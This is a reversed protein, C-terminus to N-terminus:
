KKSIKILEINYKSLNHLYKENFRRELDSIRPLIITIYHRDFETNEKFINYGTIKLDDIFINVDSELGKLVIDFFVYERDNYSKSKYNKVEEIVEDKVKSDLYKNSFELFQFPKYFHCNKNTEINFEKLLEPRPSITKGQHDLWWDEKRDDSIFIVDISDVKAKNIIQKWIILDGFKDNGPKSNDKFGPPINDKYRKEGENYITKLEESTPEKGVKNDFLKNIRELLIDKTLTKDYFEKKIDVEKKIDERILKLKSLLDSSFFPNRNKDEVTNIIDNMKKEFEEFSKKQDSIVILRKRYFELGVQYPIWINKLAEITEILKLSTEESYRYLNLLINTDFIFISNKWLEEIEEPTLPNYEKFSNKM